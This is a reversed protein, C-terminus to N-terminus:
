MAAPFTAGVVALDVLDIARESAVKAVNALADEETDYGWVVTHYHFTETDDDLEYRCISYKGNFNPGSM